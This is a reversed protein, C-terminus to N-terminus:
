SRQVQFIKTFNRNENRLYILLISHIFFNSVPVVLVQGVLVLNLLVPCVLVLVVLNLVTHVPVLTRVVLVLVIFVQFWWVVLVPVCNICTSKRSLIIKVQDFKTCFIKLILFIM